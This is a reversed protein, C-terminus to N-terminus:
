LKGNGYVHHSSALNLLLVSLLYHADELMTEMKFSSLKAKQVIQYVIDQADSVTTTWYEISVTTEKQASNDMPMLRTNDKAINKYRKMVPHHANSTWALNDLLLM